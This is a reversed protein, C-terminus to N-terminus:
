KKVKEFGYLKSDGFVHVEKIIGGKSQLEIAKDLDYWDFAKKLEDEPNINKIQNATPKENEKAM